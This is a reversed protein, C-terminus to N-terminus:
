KHLEVIAKVPCKEICVGCKQCKEQNIHAINNKFEIADCECNKACLGCGICGATCAKKVDLGRDKSSCKVVYKAEFPIIEILNKPCAKVCKGCAVCKNKDVVAKGNVVHIADFECAKVCSGLGLCGFSCMKAGGGPINAADGCDANGIYNYKNNAHDCDGGCKVYAVKKVLEAEIGVIKSIAAAVEAGGVPCANPQSEGKAIAAALGDCGAYGCGGCNNGPLAERIAVEKEDVPVSLFKGSVSLIIGILLGVGGVVLAASLIEM